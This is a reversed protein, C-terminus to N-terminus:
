YLMEASILERVTGISNAYHDSIQKKYSKRRLPRSLSTYLGVMM